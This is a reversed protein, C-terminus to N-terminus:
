GNSKEPAPVVELVKMEEATFFFDDASIIVHKDNLIVWDEKLKYVPIGTTLIAPWNLIYAKGGGYVTEDFAKRDGVKVYIIGEVEHTITHPRIEGRKVAADHIVKLHADLEKWKKDAWLEYAYSNSALGGGRYIVTKM